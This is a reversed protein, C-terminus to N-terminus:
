KELAITHFTARRRTFLAEALMFGDQAAQRRHQREIIGRALPDTHTDRL